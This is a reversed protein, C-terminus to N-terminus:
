HGPTFPIMDRSFYDTATLVLLIGLWFCTVLIVIWTLRPSLMVHMFVLLVMLAKIFGISLGIIIHYLGPMPIFSITVSIITLVIMVVAVLVYLRASLPHEPM